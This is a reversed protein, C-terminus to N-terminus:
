NLAYVSVGNVHIIKNQISSPAEVGPSCVLYQAGSVRYIEALEPTFEAADPLTWGKRRLFYLSANETPDSVVLLKAERPIGERDLATRVSTYMASTTDFRREMEVKRYRDVLDFQWVSVTLLLYVFVRTFVTFTTGGFRNHLTTFANILNLGVIPIFVMFYYDHDRFQKFFLVFYALGGVLSFWAMAQLRRNGHKMWVLSALLLLWLLRTFHGFYYHKYWYGTMYEWVQAIAEPTMKWIPRSEVLFYYNKYLTNYHIAYLNWAAIATGGLVLGVILVTNSRLLQPPRKGEMWGVLLVSSLAAIPHIFYTIKLLGSLTFWFVTSYAARPQEDMWFRLFAAWGLLACGLASADPLLNPIYYFLIPSTVTLGAMSWAMFADTVFRQVTRLLAFLGALSFAATLLRLFWEHEGFLKWAQATLWYLIPFEAGARGDISNLSYVEPEIFPAGTAYNAVFSLSDTQRTFHIGSPPGVFMEWANVLVLLFVLFAAFGITPTQGIVTNRLRNAM